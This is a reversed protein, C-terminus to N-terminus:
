KIIEFYRESGSSLSYKLEDNFWVKNCIIYNNKRDYECKITDTTSENWKVYTIPFVESIVQNPYISIRYESQHQYIRFGKPSDLEPEYYEITEGNILYFIKIESENFSNENIPNLLDIDDINKISIDISTDVIAQENNDTNCSTLLSM